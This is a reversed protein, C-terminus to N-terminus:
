KKQMLSEIDSIEIPHDSFLNVPKGATILFDDELRVGLNEEPIYIGPECSVVMGPEFPITKTGPDHVDLGIFHSLGHMFYKKYAPKKKDQNAIDSKTLLGLKLLENETVQGAKANIQEITKGPVIELIMQKMIRLVAEYIEAQRKTFKGNVPITRSTDSAYNAYEAGFDMLLIDGPECKSNNANYHLYCSNRGSAVIPTFAHVNARNNIFVHTLEAEIEYEYMGPEVTELIRHFAKASIRCAQKMLEIEESEKQIRLQELIPLLNKYRYYPHKSKLNNQFDVQFLHMGPTKKEYECIYIYEIDILAGQLLNDFEEMWIITEIGSLEKTQKQDLRPGNWIEFEPKPENIFLIENYKQGTKNKILVFLANEQNIGTLYFFDSSQRFPYENKGNRLVLANSQLIVISNEPLHSALKARNKQFLTKNIYSYNM